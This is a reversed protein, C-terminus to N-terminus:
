SVRQRRGIALGALALGLLALTTGSDPVYVLVDQYKEAGITINMIKVTGKTDNAKAGAENVFEAYADTLYINGAVGTFYQNVEDELYWIAVQLLGANIDHQADLDRSYLSGNIFKEYLYATGASIPDNPLADTANSLAYSYTGPLNLHVEKEVCFTYFIDGGPIIQAEFEGGILDGDFATNELHVTGTTPISVANAISAGGLAAAVLLTKITNKM